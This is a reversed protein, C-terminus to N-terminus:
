DVAHRAVLEVAIGDPDEVIAVSIEPRLRTPELQWVAGAARAREVIADLDDVDFTVWRLGVAETFPGREFPSAAGDDPGPEMLKLRSDGVEFLHLVRGFAVRFEGLYRLGIVDRYFALSRQLDGPVIGVQMM